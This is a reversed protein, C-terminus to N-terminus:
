LHRDMWLLVWIELLSWVISFFLSYRVPLRSHVRPVVLRKCFMILKQM